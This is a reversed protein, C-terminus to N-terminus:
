DKLNCQHSEQIKLLRSCVQLVCWLAWLALRSRLSIDLTAWVLPEMKLILMHKDHAPSKPRSSAPHALVSRHHHLM